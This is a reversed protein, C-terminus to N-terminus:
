KAELISSFRELDYLTWWVQRRMDRDIQNPFENDQILNMSQAVRIAAGAYVWASVGGIEHM